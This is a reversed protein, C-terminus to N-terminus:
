EIDSVTGPIDVESRAYSEVNYRDSPVETRASRGAVLMDWFAEPNTADQPFRLGMGVIAIPENM